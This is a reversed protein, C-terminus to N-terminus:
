KKAQLTVGNQQFLLRTVQGSKNRQFEFKAGVLETEFHDPSMEHIPLAPQNGLKAFLNQSRVEIILKQEAPLQYTGTLETLAKATRFLYTPAKEDLRKAPTKQQNQELIVSTVKGHENRQFHLKAAVGRHFFADGQEHTYPLFTQGTLKGWLGGERQVFTFKAGGGLGYMGLYPQLAEASLAAGAVAEFAAKDLERMVMAPEQQANSVLVLRVQQKQPLVQLLSKYGGTAGNHWILDEGLFFCCGIGEALPKVALQICDKLPSKEPQMIALGYRLMDEATSRLGGAPALADFAWEHGEEAGRFPAALRSRRKSDPKTMTDSMGLPECIRTRLLHEWSNELAIELVRGLVAIAANSYSMPQPAPKTLKIEKLWQSLLKADYTAYPADGTFDANFPMRPLGSTHTALQAMTIAAVKEDAFSQQPGLAQQLTTQFTLKKELVAQALLLGTFTKSISGIEFLIKEAPVEAPRDKGAAAYRAQGERWQALTICGRPLKRATPSLVEALSIDKACLSSSLSLLSTLIFFRMKM